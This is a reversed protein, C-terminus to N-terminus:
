NSPQHSRGFFTIPIIGTADNLVGDRIRKGNNATYVDSSWTTFGIVFYTGGIEEIRLLEKVSTTSKDSAKFDLVQTCPIM